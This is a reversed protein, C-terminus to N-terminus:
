GPETVFKLTSFYTCTLKIEDTPTIDFLAMNSKHSSPHKLMVLCVVRDEQPMIAKLM